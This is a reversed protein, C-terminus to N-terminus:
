FTFRGGPLTDETITRIMDIQECDLESRWKQASEESNRYVSYFDSEKAVVNQSAGVFEVTEEALEIRAHEYMREVWCRTDKAVNEYDVVLCNELGEVQRLMQENKIVWSWCIREIDSMATLAELSIGRRIAGQSQSLANIAIAGNLHGLRKGRLQSAVIGAPHRIVLIFRDEPCARAYVGARGSAVVSKVVVNCDEMRERNVFDPLRVRNVRGRIPKIMELARLALLSSSNLLSNIPGRYKKRFHPRSSSTKVSSITCLNDLYARATTLYRATQEVPIAGPMERNIFVSDPEHRYIVNPNADFLKAIWTTGSRPSGIIFVRSKM